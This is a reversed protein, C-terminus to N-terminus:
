FSCLDGFYCYVSDMRRQDYKKADEAYEKGFKKAMFKRYTSTAQNDDKLYDTDGVDVFFDKLYYHIHDEIFEGEGEWIDWVDGQMEYTIDSLKRDVKFDTLSRDIDWLELIETCLEKLDEDTLKDLYKM